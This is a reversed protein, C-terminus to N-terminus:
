QLVNTMILAGQLHHHRPSPAIDACFGTVIIIGVKESLSVLVTGDTDEGELGEKNEPGALSAKMRSKGLTEALGACESWVESGELKM